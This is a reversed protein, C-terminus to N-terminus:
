INSTSENAKDLHGARGRVRGGVHHRWKARGPHEAMFRLLQDSGVNPGALSPCRWTKVSPSSSRPSRSIGTSTPHVDQLQLGWKVMDDDTRKRTGQNIQKKPAGM